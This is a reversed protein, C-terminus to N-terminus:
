GAHEVVACRKFLANSGTPIIATTATLDSPVAFDGIWTWSFACNQGLRDLPPRVIQAVEDVIMVEQILMANHQGLWERLGNYSGQILAEAGMIIPRRVRVNVGTGAPQVFAETTPIYRVGLLEVVRGDRYTSESGHGQFALKFDQDAYLQRMSTNDLICNYFGGEGAPIGNDRLYAVADEILSMSLLDSGVLQATTTRGNPRFMRPGNVAVLADGDVPATAALFVIDGSVGGAAAASSANVLDRTVSTVTLTQSVSGTETVLIPTAVTVTVPEGNVLVKEFGRVDDVAATTTTSAALDTRVRSNGGMYADFLKKHAIREQTQAAQTGNNKSVILSQLQIGATEQVLNVDGSDAYNEIFFEYQEVAFTSPTLGNDLNSNISTPTVPANLPAKKGHRTKKLTEGARTSLREQVAQARYALQSMLGDQFERELSNDQLVEILATPFNVLNGAM